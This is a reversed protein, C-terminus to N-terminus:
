GQPTKTESVQHVTTTTGTQVVETATVTTKVKPIPNQKLYAFFGLTGNVAFMTAVLGYFKGTSFNFKEPDMLSATVGGVVSTAGGGIFAALMGEIWNGWDLNSFLNM